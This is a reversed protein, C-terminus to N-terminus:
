GMNWGPWHTKVLDAHQSLILTNWLIFHEYLVKFQHTIDVSVTNTSNIIANAVQVFSDNSLEPFMFHLLKM